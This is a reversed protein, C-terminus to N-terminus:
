YVSKESAGQKLEPLWDKKARDKKNYFIAM